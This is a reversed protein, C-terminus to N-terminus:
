CWFSRIPETLRLQNALEIAAVPAEAIAINASQSSVIEFPGAEFDISAGGSVFRIHTVGDPVAITKAPSFAPIDVKLLGTTRDISPTYPIFITSSLKGNINFNFGELLELEGDLVNRQGRTSTVDAKVVAVMEKTLRAVMRSDSANQLFTRLAMRLIKGAAGARGFEEGNERTRQFAPDSKIKDGSVGGKGRALMGDQSKYFTIDGITGELKIIGSQKAM